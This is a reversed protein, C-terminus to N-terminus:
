YTDITIHAGTDGQRVGDNWDRVAKNYRLKRSGGRYANSTFHCDNCKVEIFSMGWIGINDSYCSPCSNIM